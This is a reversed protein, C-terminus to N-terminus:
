QQLWKYFFDIVFPICVFTTENVKRDDEDGEQKKKNIISYLAQLFVLKQSSAGSLVADPQGPIPHPHWGSIYQVM